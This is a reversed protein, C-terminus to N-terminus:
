RELKFDPDVRPIGAATSLAWGTAYMWRTMRTLKAFDIRISEDRPTHYDPHLLTTFFLAPIGARAYPLHDSRFYWNEPHTPRDWISDIVFRSVTRNADLAMAVLDRSNRHPPSVGLLAATDPHNRGMMDGNLVAVISNRPVTPREVFWRSGLLGREEAGHWVFLATRRGPNRAFARGIALMAVSVTGNDDAGNWISDGGVTTRVGDHDQHGSFLVYDNKLRRDSGPVQAVVNVSPYTFSESSLRAVLRQGDGRLAGAMAGRVWLVPTRPQRGPEVGASDVGYSGRAYFPTLVEFTTETVSDSVLVIAAAGTGQLTTVRQRLAAWTYRWEWLSVGAPPLPRPAVVQAAVARGRLDMAALQASDAAGVWVLPANVDADTPNLVVADRWLALPRGGLEVRSASSVRIRRLPFFQFYTGHDGAPLMGADRAREALWVSARLEDLTGAERGRFTDAALTELDRRLDAERIAALAPPPTSSFEGTSAFINQARLPAALALALMAPVLARHIKMQPGPP